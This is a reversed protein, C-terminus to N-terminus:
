AANIFRLATESAEKASVLAVFIPLFDGYHSYGSNYNNNQEKHAKNLNLKEYTCVCM